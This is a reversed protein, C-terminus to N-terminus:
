KCFNYVKENLKKIFNYFKFGNYLTIVFLLTVFIFVSINFNSIIISIIFSSFLIIPFLFSNVISIPNKQLLFEKAIFSYKIQNKDSVLTNIRQQLYERYGQNAIVRSYHYSIHLFVLFPIIPIIVCVEDPLKNSLIYVLTVGIMAVSIELITDQRNLFTEIRDNCQNYENLLIELDNSSDKKDEKM